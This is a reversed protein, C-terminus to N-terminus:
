RPYESIDSSKPSYGYFHMPRLGLKAEQVMMDAVMANVKTRSELYNCFNLFVVDPLSHELMARYQEVSFNFLRRQRKTVTTVEPTVGPLMSWDLERQDKYGPGSFGQQHGAESYINGVRIPLTRVVAMSKYFFRPHIGADSLGQQLTCDRSTTYPYFGSANVSLSFGQPVEVLVAKDELLERNLCVPKCQFKIKHGSQQIYKGLNPGKRMVKRALAAGVGKRTSAIKTASSGSANEEAYDCPLIVAANPNVFIQSFPINLEEIERNLVDIDIIAGADIYVRAWNLHRATHFASPIHFSVVPGGPYEVGEDDVHPELISTHGANASANTVCWDIHNSEGVWAAALGKGTSGFQGDFLVSAKGKTVFNSIDPGPM